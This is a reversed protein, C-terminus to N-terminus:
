LINSEVLYLVLNDRIENVIKQPVGRYEEVPADEYEISFGDTPTYKVFGRKGEKREVVPYSEVLFGTEKLQEETKITGDENKIGYQEDFPRYHTMVVRNTDKNTQIYVM